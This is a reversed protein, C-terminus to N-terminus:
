AYDSVYSDIVVAQARISKPVSAVFAFAYLRRNISIGISKDSNYGTLVHDISM